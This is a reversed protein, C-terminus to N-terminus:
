AAVTELALPKQKEQGKLAALREEFRMEWQAAPIAMETRSRPRKPDRAVRCTKVLMELFEIEANVCYLYDCWNYSNM